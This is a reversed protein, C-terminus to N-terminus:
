ENVRKLVADKISDGTLEYFIEKNDDLQFTVKQSLPISAGNDGTLIQVEMDAEGNLDFDEKLFEFKLEEGKEIKSGDANTMNLSHNLVAVGLGNFDFNAKNRVNIIMNNENPEIPAGSQVTCASLLMILFISILLLKKM